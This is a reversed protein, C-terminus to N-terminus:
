PLMVLDPSGACGRQRWADLFAESVEPTVLWLRDCPEELTGARLAGLAGRWFIQARGDALPPNASTLDVFQFQADLGLQYTAAHVREIEDGLGSDEVLVAGGREIIPDRWGSIQQVTQEERTPPVSVSMEARAQWVAPILVAAALVLGLLM